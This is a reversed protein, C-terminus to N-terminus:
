VSVDVDRFRVAPMRLGSMRKVDTSVGDLQMLLKPISGAIAVEQVPRVVQGSRIEWVNPSTVSFDGTTANATHAGLVSDVLYGHDVDAVLKDRSVTNRHTLALHHTGTSPRGKFDDRVASHTTQVHNRHADWSDFLYTRLEGGAVIPTAHTPLGEGDLPSAGVAEAMWPDDVLGLGAAAVATGVKGSWASKGRLAEDGNAASVMWEVVLETAAEPEFVIDVKGGAKIEAPKRLSKATQAALRGVDTADLSLDHRSRGESASISREGDELIVAASASAMTSRDGCEAGETSALAWCGADLSAGGGSVVVSPEAAKAGDLMAKALGVAVQADAQAVEDHWRGPLDRPKSAHPLSYGHVTALRTNRLAADVAAMAGGDSTFYAFGMKGGKVVRVSGGASRSASATALAGKEIEVSMGEGWELYVEVQDAGRGRAQQVLRQARGLLADVDFADFANSPDSGPPPERAGPKQLGSITM